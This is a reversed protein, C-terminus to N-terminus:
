ALVALFANTTTSASATIKVPTGSQQAAAESAATLLPLLVLLKRTM